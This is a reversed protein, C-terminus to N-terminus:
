WWLSMVVFVVCPAVVIGDSATPESTPATTNKQTVAQPCTFNASFSAYVVSDNFGTENDLSPRSIELIRGTNGTNNYVRYSGYRLATSFYFNEPCTSNGNDVCATKNIFRTASSTGNTFGSVSWTSNCPCGQVPDNFLNQLDTCPGAQEGTTTTGGPTYFAAKNTKTLTAEFTEAYYTLKKWDGGLITNNGGKVFSGVTVVSTTLTGSALSLPCTGTGFLFVISYGGDFAFQFDEQTIFTNISAVLPSNCNEPTTSVVPDCCAQAPSCKGGLVAPTWVGCLDSTANSANQAASLVAFLLILM